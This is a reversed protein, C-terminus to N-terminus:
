LPDGQQWERAHYPRPEICGKPCSGRKERTKGCVHCYTFDSVMEDLTKVPNPDTPLTPLGNELLVKNYEGLSEKDFQKLETSWFSSEKGLENRLVIFTDMGDKVRGAVGRWRVYRGVELGIFTSYDARKGIWYKLEDSM